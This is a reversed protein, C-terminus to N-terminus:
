LSLARLAHRRCAALNLITIPEADGRFRSFFRLGLGLALVSISLRWLLSKVNNRASKKVETKVEVSIFLLLYFGVFAILFMALRNFQGYWRIRYFESSQVM